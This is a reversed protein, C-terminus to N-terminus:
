NRPLLREFYDLELRPREQEGLKRRLEELVRRAREGVTGGEHGQVRMRTNEGLSRSRTDRGLPDNLRNNSNARPQGPRNPDDGGPGGDAQETGDGGQQQQQQAMGQMGRRLGELAKGQSDVARGEQGRGLQGEADRMSQEADGFGKEGDMGLERMRRQMRELQQRLNEQRQQLSQGRGQGQGQGEGGEAMDQEGGEGPEQGGQGQQGRQGRQGQQGQQGQQGRQGQQAGPQNQQWNNRGERRRREQGERHTQDRLEQQERTMQDLENMAENMGRQREGMQGQGRQAQLNKMAENLQRLLEQAEAHKGERSLREIEELMKQMDNRNLLRQNDQNPQQEAFRGERQAREAFERMFRDMARRLEETLRKIEDADANRDLAEKLREQAERLAKEADSLGEGEIELAMTWLWDAVELLKADTRASKLRQSALRLGVYAGTQKALFREPEILLADLAIQVRSKRDPDMVLNRRQEVLAKALPNSFVKQPLTVERIESEAKQGLDDVAHLQLRVRSGAWPHEGLTVATEAEAEPQNGYPLTLAANPAPVLTRRPAEGANLIQSFRVEAEKVGYDDKVGYTIRLGDRTDTPKVDILSISPATDAIASLVFRGLLEKGRRISAEGDGVLKFRKEFSAGPASPAAESPQLAGSVEVTVGDVPTARIVLTSGAPSSAAHAAGNAGEAQQSRVLFQPPRGTYAPPDLWVDLRPPPPPVPPDFWEFAAGVRGTLDPGAVFLGALALLLPAFRLAGPDKRRLAPDPTPVKLREVAAMARKQHLAWLARAEATDSSGLNDTAAEVPRHLIGSERDLRARADETKVRGLRMFGRLSVVFALFFAISGVIRLPRPADVWLGFWSVALFLAIVAAPPVLMPWVREWLIVKGAAAVKRDLKQTPTAQPASRNLEAM